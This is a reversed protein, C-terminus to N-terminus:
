RRTQAYQVGAGRQGATRDGPGQRDGHSGGGALRCFQFLRRLPGEGTAGSLGHHAANGGPPHLPRLHTPVPRPARPGTEGDGGNSGHMRSEGVHSVRQLDRTTKEQHCPLRHLIWLNELDDGQELPKFRHRPIKHDLEAEKWPVLGGCVGCIGGDRQYVVENRDKIGKREETGIWEEDLLDLSERHTTTVGSTYPNTIARLRHRKAKYESPMRLATTETRFPHQRWYTRLVKLISMQYKRGLWHAMIWFVENHLKGFCISPSATTQYYRCWGGIIRNLGMIKARVSDGHTNPSLAARVKQRVKGMAREPIRIRPAWKGTGTIQRDITFVLFEFGDHIHTVKTKEMSLELKLDAKLFKYLEERMAEAQEKTGDCLGVFDDAYRAYLFNALGRRRRNQREWHSLETYREMYRDLEHLYINALLPSVIGGQPTGLVTHRFTGEEMIGAWLFEWILSLIKKDKIRRRLLQM